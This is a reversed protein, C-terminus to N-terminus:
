DFKQYNQDPSNGGGGRGTCSGGMPDTAEVQQRAKVMNIHVVRRKSRRTPVAVELTVEIIVRTVEYPGEWVDELTGRIDPTIVLVMSGEDFTRPKAKKDYQKMRRKEKEERGAVM